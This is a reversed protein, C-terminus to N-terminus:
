DPDYEDDEPGIMGLLLGVACAVLLIGYVWTLSILM